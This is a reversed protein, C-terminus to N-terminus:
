GPQGFRAAVEHSRQWLARGFEGGGSEALRAILVGRVLACAGTVAISTRLACERALREYQGVDARTAAYPLVPTLELRAQPREAELRQDALDRRFVSSFFLDM